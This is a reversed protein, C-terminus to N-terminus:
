RALPLRGIRPAIHVRINVEYGAYTNPRRNPKITDQLWRTLFAGVTERDNTVPLGQAVTLKVEQLKRKTAAQTKGAVQKLTGDPLTVRGIWMGDSRQFLTGEGNARKRTAM